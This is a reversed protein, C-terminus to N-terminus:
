RVEPPCKGSTAAARSFLEGYRAATDDWSPLAAAYRRAATGAAVRREADLLLTAVTEGMAAPSPAITVHEGPEIGRASSPSAVVACGAAM